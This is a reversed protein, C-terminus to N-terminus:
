VTIPSTHSARNQRLSFSANQVNSEHNGCPQSVIPWPHATCQHRPRCPSTPSKTCRDPSQLLMIKSLVHSPSSLVLIPKLPTTVHGTCYKSCGLLSSSTQPAKWKPKNRDRFPYRLQQKKPKLPLMTLAHKLPDTLIRFLANPEFHGAQHHWTTKTDIRTQKMNNQLPSKGPDRM